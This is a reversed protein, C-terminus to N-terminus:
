GEEDFMWWKKSQLDQTEFVLKMNELTLKWRKRLMERFQINNDFLKM